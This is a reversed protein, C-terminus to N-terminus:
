KWSWKRVLALLPMALTYPIQLVSWLPLFRLLPLCRFRVAAVGLHLLDGVM